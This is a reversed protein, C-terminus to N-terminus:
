ESRAEDHWRQFLARKRATREALAREPLGNATTFYDLAARLDGIEEIMRTGLNTGDFHDLQGGSGILKGLVQGLEGMEEIVKSLGPWISSGISYPGASAVAAREVEQTRLRARDEADRGSCDVGECPSKGHTECNPHTCVGPADSTITTTM